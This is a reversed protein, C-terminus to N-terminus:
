AGRWSCALEALARTLAEAVLPWGEEPALPEPEDLVLVGPRELLWEIPPSATVGLEAALGRALEAYERALSQDVRVQGAGGTLARLGVNVDLRGRQLQGHILRRAELELSAISRPLKLAIDLHRHNLSRAEVTVTFKEGAVEARGYGTMSRIM